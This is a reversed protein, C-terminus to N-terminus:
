DWIISGFELDLYLELRELDSHQYFETKNPGTLYAIFGHDTNYLACRREGLTGEKIPSSTKLDTRAYNSYQPIPFQPRLAVPTCAYFDSFGMKNYASAAWTLERSTTKAEGIIQVFIGLQVLSEVVPKFDQDGAFLVARSMNKQAAHVMMDVALLIDVEKQRRIRRSGKLTGLRIHCGFVNRISKLFDSQEQIRKDFAAKDEDQRQEEDLCDYYFIKPTLPEILDGRDLPVFRPYPDILTNLRDIFFPFYIPAESGFWKKTIDSHRRRLYGGDIFTYTSM